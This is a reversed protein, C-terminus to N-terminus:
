ELKECTTIRDKGVSSFIGYLASWNICHLLKNIYFTSLICYYYKLFILWIKVTVNQKKTPVSSVMLWLDDFVVSMEKVKNHFLSITDNLAWKFQWWLVLKILYCLLKTHYHNYYDINTLFGKNTYFIAHNRYPIFSVEGFYWLLSKDLIGM